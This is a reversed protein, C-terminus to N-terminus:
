SSLHRSDGGISRHCWKKMSKWRGAFWRSPKMGKPIVEVAQCFSVEGLSSLKLGESTDRKSNKYNM